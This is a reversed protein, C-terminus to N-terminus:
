VTTKLGLQQAMIAGDYYLRGRQIIGDEVDYVVCMPIEVARGTPPIGWLEGNHVGRFTFEMVVSREGAVINTFEAEAGPFNVNYFNYIMQSIAEPGRITEKRTFDQFTAQESMVSLEGQNLFARVAELNMQASM